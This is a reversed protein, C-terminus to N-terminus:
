SLSPSLCSKGLGVSLPVAISSGVTLKPSFSSTQFCQNPELDLITIRIREFCILHVFLLYPDVHTHLKTVSPTTTESIKALLPRHPFFLIIFLITGFSFLCYFIGIYNSDKLLFSLVSVLFLLLLNRHLRKIIGHFPPFKYSFLSSTSVKHYLIVGHLLSIITFYSLVKYFKWKPCTKSGSCLFRVQLIIVNYHTTNIILSPM